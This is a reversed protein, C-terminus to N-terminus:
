LFLALISRAEDVARSHIDEAIYKAMDDSKIYADNNICELLPKLSAFDDTVIEESALMYNSGCVYMYIDWKNAAYGASCNFVFLVACVIGFIRLWIRHM